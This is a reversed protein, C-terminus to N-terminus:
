HLGISVVSRAQPNQYRSTDYQEVTRGVGRWVPRPWDQTDTQTFEQPNGVPGEHQLVARQDPTEGGALCVCSVSLDSNHALESLLPCFHSWTPCFCPVLYSMIIHGHRVLGSLAGIQADQTVLVM